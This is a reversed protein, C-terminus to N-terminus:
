FGMTQLILKEPVNEVAMSKRHNEPDFPVPYGRRWDEIDCVPALDLQLMGSRLDAAIDVLQNAVLQCPINGKSMRMDIAFTELREVPLYVASFLNKAQGNM